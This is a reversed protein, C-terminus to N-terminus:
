VLDDETEDPTFDEPRIGFVKYNGITPFSSHNIRFATFTVTFDEDNDYSVIIYRVGTSVNNQFIYQKWPPYKEAVIKIHEPVTKLWEEFKQKIDDISNSM